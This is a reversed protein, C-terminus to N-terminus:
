PRPQNKRLKLTLRLDLLALFVIAGLLGVVALTLYYLERGAREDDIARFLAYFCGGLLLMAAGGFRRLRMRRRNLQQEELGGLVAGARSYFLYYWGAAAVLISFAAALM